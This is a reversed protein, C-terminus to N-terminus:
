YIFRDLYQYNYKLYTAAENISLYFISSANEGSKLRYGNDATFENLVQLLKKQEGSVIDGLLKYWEFHKIDQKRARKSQM